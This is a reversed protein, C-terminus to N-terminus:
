HSAFKQTLQYIQSLFSKQFGDVDDRKISLRLPDKEIALYSSDMFDSSEILWKFYKQRLEKFETIHEESYEKKLLFKIEKSYIEPEEEIIEPLFYLAVTGTTDKRTERIIQEISILGEDHMWLKFCFLGKFIQWFFSSEDKLHTKIPILIKQFLKISNRKNTNSVARSNYAFLQCIMMLDDKNNLFNNPIKEIIENIQEDKSNSPLSSLDNQIQSFFKIKTTDNFFNFM